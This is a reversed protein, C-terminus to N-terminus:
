FSQQETWFSEKVRFPRFIYKTKKEPEICFTAGANKCHKTDTKGSEFLEINPSEISTYNTESSKKFSASLKLFTLLPAFIYPPGQVNIM